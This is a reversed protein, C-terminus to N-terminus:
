YVFGAPGVLRPTDAALPDANLKQNTVYEVDSAPKLNQL